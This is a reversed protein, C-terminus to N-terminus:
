KTTLYRYATIVVDDHNMEYFNERARKEGGVM